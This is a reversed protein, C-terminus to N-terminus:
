KLLAKVLKLESNNLFDDAHILTYRGKVPGEDNNQRLLFIGPAGSYFKPATYWHVDDSSAFYFQVDGDASGKLVKKVKIRSRVYQPDHETEGIPAVPVSDASIVAGTVVLDATGLREKLAKNKEAQQQLRIKEKISTTTTSGPEVAKVQAGLTNGFHTTQNFFVYDGGEQLSAMQQANLMMTIEKGEFGEQNPSAEITETVKIIATTNSSTMGSLNSANKKVVTGKIVYDSNPYTTTTNEVVVPPKTSSCQQVLLALLLLASTLLSTRKMALNYIVSFLNILLKRLVVM